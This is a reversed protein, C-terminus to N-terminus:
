RSKLANYLDRGGLQLIQEIQQNCKDIEVDYKDLKKELAEIRRVQSKLTSYKARVDRPVRVRPEEDSKKKKAKTKSKGNSVFKGHQDRPAGVRGPPRKRSNQEYVDDFGTSMKNAKNYVLLLKFSLLVCKILQHKVLRVNVNKM